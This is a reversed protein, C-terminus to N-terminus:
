IESPGYELGYQDWVVPLTFVKVIQVPTNSFDGDEPAYIKPHHRDYHGEHLSYDIEVKALYFDQKQDGVILSTLEGEDVLVLMDDPLNDILQKLKIITLCNM